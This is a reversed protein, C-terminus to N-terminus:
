QKMGLGHATDPLRQEAAALTKAAMQGIAYEHFRGDCYISFKGPDDVLQKLIPISESGAIPVAAWVALGRLNADASEMYPLLFPAASRALDPRSHALRGIGWVVGRQLIQHELFNCAPQIYSILICGYEVALRENRAMAEAMSEPCGWGIGGSEDNLQWIFRRMVVRASELDSEALKSVIRGMAAVARWKLRQDPSCLFSFLPNVAQRPPLKVIADLGRNFDEAQLLEAIIRKLKRGGIKKM